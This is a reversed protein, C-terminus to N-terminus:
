NGYSKFAEEGKKFPPLKGKQFYKILDQDTVVRFCKKLARRMRLPCGWCQPHKVKVSDFNDEILQTRGAQCEIQYLYPAVQVGKEILSNRIENQEIYASILYPNPDRIIEYIEYIQM